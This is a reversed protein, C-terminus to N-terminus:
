SPSTVAKMSVVTLTGAGDDYQPTGARREPRQGLMGPGSDRAADFQDSSLLDRMTAGSVKNNAGRVAGTPPSITIM